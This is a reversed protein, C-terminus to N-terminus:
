EVNRSFSNSLAGFLSVGRIDVRLEDDQSKLTTNDDFRVKRKNLFLFDKWGVTSTQNAFDYKRM